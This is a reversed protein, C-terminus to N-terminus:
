EAIGTIEIDFVLNSNPPIPGGGQEGLGLHPPMFARIKDGVKMTLLAERFGPFLRAEPSYLMPTPEYGRGQKRREDFQMFKKAVEEINSDFLNGNELYGAYSVMVNQGVKPTTGTGEAISMVQLGTPTSKATKKNNALETAFKPLMDDYAKKLAEQEKKARAVREEEEAFYNTMIQVADFKKADKGTRIIEVTNMIVDVVPKDKQPAQSTAVNAISDLVEMGNLVKGFITHRGDLWPTEKHTIFFQSGNTSPPGPNAMSLLGAKNHKLSDNFEDKFKYGPGGTGTGTPDGGQIVFGKMVRHFIIGDFYKKGKYDESVFPSNGEALSVFSAVTVPTKEHELKVMMDGKTTQINAYIGDDLDPYKSSKCSIIALSITLIFLYTKKM